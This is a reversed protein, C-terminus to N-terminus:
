FWSECAVMKEETDSRLAYSFGKQLAFAGVEGKKNMALFAV